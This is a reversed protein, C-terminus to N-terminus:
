GRATVELEVPFVIAFPPIGHEQLYCEPLCIYKEGDLKLYPATSGRTMVFGDGAALLQYEKGHTEKLTILRM